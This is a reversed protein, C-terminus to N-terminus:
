GRWEDFDGYINAAVDEPLAKLLKNTLSSETTSSNPPYRLIAKYIAELQKQTFDIKM